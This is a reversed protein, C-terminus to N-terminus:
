PWQTPKTQKNTQKNKTQQKTKPKPKQNKKKKKKKKQRTKTKSRNPFCFWRLPDGISRLGGEATINSLSVNEVIKDKFRM